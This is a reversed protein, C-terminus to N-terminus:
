LVYLCVLNLFTGTDTSSTPLGADHPWGAGVFHSFASKAFECLLLCCLASSVKLCANHFVCSFHTYYELLERMEALTANSWDEEGFKENLKQVLEKHTINQPVNM